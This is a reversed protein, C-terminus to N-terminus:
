TSPPNTFLERHPPVPVEARSVTLLGAADFERLVREVQKRAVEAPVGVVDHVDGVLDDVSAAGDVIQLMLTAIPDLARPENRITSWVVTELDVPLSVFDDRLAPVFRRGGDAVDADATM